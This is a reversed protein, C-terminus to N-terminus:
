KIIGFSMALLVFGTLVVIAIIARSNMPDSLISTARAYAKKAFEYMGNFLAKIKM